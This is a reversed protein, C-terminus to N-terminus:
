RMFPLNKLKDELEMVAKLFRLQVLMMIMMIVIM